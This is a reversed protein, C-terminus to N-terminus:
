RVNAAASMRRIVRLDGLERRARRLEVAAAAGAGPDAFPSPDDPVLVRYEIRKLLPAPWISRRVFVMAVDDFAILAWDRRPFYILSVPSARHIGTRVDVIDIKERHYEDVAATIAYKALLANWRRQDLRAAGYERIFGHYLENRGDTIVRREPYLRWILYGGFQDPNYVHGGRDHRQFADMAVVPFRSSDIGPSHDNGAIAALLLAVSAVYAAARMWTRGLPAVLGGALLPYAAFFLGQNRVFRVSLVGLLAILLARWSEERPLGSAIAWAVVLAITAYLLPFAAPSSPLWEANVFEGGGVFRALRLPATVADIGYPNVLLAVASLMTARFRLWPPQNPSPRLSAIGAAVPALLASPHTNIWVVTLLAYGMDRRLTPDRGLLVVGGGLLMAAATSPRMDLRGAGGAVALATLLLAAADGCRKRVQLFVAFFFLGVAAGRAISMGQDSVASELPYAIIQFLWEGNIWPARDSAVSFPDTLPLAAHEIIWRGTALHWYTDYSRIPAVGAIVLTALLIAPLLVRRLPASTM